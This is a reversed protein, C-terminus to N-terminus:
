GSEQLTMGEVVRFEEDGDFRKPDFADISRGELVGLAAAEGLAPARMFGHGHWGAAVHLGGIEGVLPNRDPTATCLGAWGNRVRGEFNLLRDDLRRAMREPFEPDADREWDDPDSAVSEAGDGALIGTRTPRAYYGETADYLTPVAPGGSRVAQVRYAKLALSVGADALLNATHAGAAVLVDDYPEAGEALVRPPDARVSVEVGTRLEAGAREARAAMTRAYSEPDAVGANEALAATHVDECVLQPFRERIGGPDVLSVDRGNARMRGVSDRIADVEPGAETAFFLYPTDNFAFDGTAALARFRALSRAAVAADIDEAFADYAIGAARTTSGSGIGDREYLTVDAGRAALDHAATAGVAGGGVVAVRRTV